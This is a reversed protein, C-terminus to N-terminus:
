IGAYHRRGGHPDVITYGRLSVEHLRTLHHGSNADYVLARDNGLYERIVMVHHSRVAAMGAGPAARPFAFWNAALWLDRIPRGFVELAAGCGCFATHPCGAPHPLLEGSTAYHAEHSYARAARLRKHPATQPEHSGGWGWVQQAGQHAGWASQWPDHWAQQRDHHRYRTHANAPTLAFALFAALITFILKM